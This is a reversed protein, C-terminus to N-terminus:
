SNSAKMFFRLVATRIFLADILRMSDQLPERQVPESRM